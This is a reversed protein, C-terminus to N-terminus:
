KRDLPFFFESKNWSKWWSKRIQLFQNIIKQSIKAKIKKKWHNIIKADM